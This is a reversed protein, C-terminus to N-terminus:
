LLKLFEGIAPDFRAYDVLFADHGQPSPFAHFEVDSGASRLETAIPQQDITYLTDSQVGLVLARRVQFKAFAAAIGTRCAKGDPRFHRAKARAAHFGGFREALRRLHPFDPSVDSVGSVLIM